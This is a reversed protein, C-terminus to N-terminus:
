LEIKYYKTEALYGGRWSMEKASASPLNAKARVSITASM